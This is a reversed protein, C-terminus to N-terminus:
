RACRRFTRPTGRLISGGGDVTLVYGNDRGQPHYKKRDETTNYAAVAEIEVTGVTAKEGNGIATAKEKLEAPLKEM